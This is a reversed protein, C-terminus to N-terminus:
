LPSVKGQGFAFNFGVTFPSYESKDTARFVTIATAGSECRTEGRIPM